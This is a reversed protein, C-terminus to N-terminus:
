AGAKRVTPKPVAQQELEAVRARAANLEGVLISLAADYQAVIASLARHFALPDTPQM